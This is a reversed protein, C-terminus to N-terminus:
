WKGAPCEAFMIKTKIKMFCGCLRCRKMKPQFHPCAECMRYREDRTLKDAVILDLM